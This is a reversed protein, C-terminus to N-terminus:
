FDNSFSENFVPQHQMVQKIFEDEKEVFSGLAKKVEAKFRFFFWIALNVSPSRKHYFKILWLWEGGAAWRESDEEKIIVKDRFKPEAKNDWWFKHTKKRHEPRLVDNEFLCLCKHNLSFCPTNEYAIICM